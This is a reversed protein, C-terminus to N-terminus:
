TNDLECDFIFRDKIISTRLEDHCNQLFFWIAIFGETMIGSRLMSQLSPAHAAALHLPSPGM